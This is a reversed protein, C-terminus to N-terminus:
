FDKIASNLLDDRHFSYANNTLFTISMYRKHKPQPWIRIYSGSQQIHVTNNDVCM